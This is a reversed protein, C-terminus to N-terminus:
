YDVILPLKRATGVAHQVEKPLPALREFGSKEVYDALMDQLAYPEWGALKEVTDVGSEYYLRARISKLGPIRALDSLKVFELISQPPVGTRDALAQRSQPTKGAALMEEVSKIGAAELKVIYSQNVGRFEHLAFPKRKIRAQRLDSAHKEMEEVCTFQYYYRIAWLHKRASTKSESEIWAVFSELDDPAARDLDKDIGMLYVDYEKAIEIVRDAANPSRGSRKLHKQFGIEDM